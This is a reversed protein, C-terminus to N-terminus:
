LFLTGSASDVLPFSHEPFSGLLLLPDSDVPVSFIALLFQGDMM